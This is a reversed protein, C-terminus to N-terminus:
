REAMVVRLIRTNTPTEVSYKVAKVRRCNM